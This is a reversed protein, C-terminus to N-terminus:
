KGSVWRTAQAKSGDFQIVGKVVALYSPFDYDDKDGGNWVWKPVVGTGNTDLFKKAAEPIKKTKM